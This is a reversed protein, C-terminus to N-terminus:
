FHFLSIFFFSVKVSVPDSGQDLQIIGACGMAAFFAGFKDNIDEILDQLKPLWTSLLESAKSMIGSHNARLKTVEKELQAM